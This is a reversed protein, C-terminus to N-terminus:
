EKFKKDTAKIVGVKEMAELSEKAVLNVSKPSSLENFYVLGCTVAKPKIKMMDALFYHVIKEDQESVENSKSIRRLAEEMTESM